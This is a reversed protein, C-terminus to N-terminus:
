IKYQELPITSFDFTKINCFYVFISSLDRLRKIKKFYGCKILAVQLVNPTMINRSIQKSLQFFLLYFNLFLGPLAIPVGLSIYHQKLPWKHLNAFFPACHRLFCLKYQNSYRSTNLSKVVLLKFM